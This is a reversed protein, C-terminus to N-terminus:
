QQDHPEEPPDFTSHTDRYSGPVVFEGLLILTGTQKSRHSSSPVSSPLGKDGSPYRALVGPAALGADVADVVTHHLFAVLPSAAVVSAGVTVFAVVVVAFCCQASQHPPPTFVEVETRRKSFPSFFSSSTFVVLFPLNVPLHLASVSISLILDWDLLFQLYWVLILSGEGKVM